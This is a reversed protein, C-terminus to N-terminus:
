VAHFTGTTLTIRTRIKRYEYHIRLSMECREMNLGFSPFHLTVHKNCTCRWVDSKWANEKKVWRPIWWQFGEIHESRLFHGFVSNKRTRIKRYEPQIRLNVSYIETNLGFVPFYPGCIIYIYVYMVVYFISYLINYLIYIYIYIYIYTHIHIYIAFFTHFRNLTLLSFVLDIDNDYQKPTEM